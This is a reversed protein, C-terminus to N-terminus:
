TTAEIVFLDRASAGMRFKYVEDGKLFDFVLQGNDIVHEILLDLLVVGPAGEAFQPELASNYLYYGDAEFFGFAMAAIDGSATRLACMTADADDYLGAFFAEMNDTMFEGKDGFAKRHMEAFIGVGDRGTVTSLSPEGFHEVFRRRKRRVEHRQKKSLSALWDDRSEGLTMVAAVEHVRETVELSAAEVAKRVVVAAEQPLSDFVLRTGKPLQQIWSGLVDVVHPGLPSHYDTVDGHGAFTVTNDNVVVPILTDESAIIELEGAPFHRRWVDLWPAKPFPGVHSAVPEAGFLPTALAAHVPQWDSVNPVM